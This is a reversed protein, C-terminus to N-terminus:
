FSAAAAAYTRIFELALNPDRGRSIGCESAIGFEGVHKRAAAIRRSTGEVGDKAHVLGLYLETTPALQLKELPAYFADDTRDIPV